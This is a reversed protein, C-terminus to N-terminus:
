QTGEPQTAPAAGRTSGPCRRRHPHPVALQTGPRIVVSRDPMVPLLRFMSTEDGAACRLWHRDPPRAEEGVPGAMADAEPVRRTALHWEGTIRKLWLTLPGITRRVVENVGIRMPRWIDIFGSM